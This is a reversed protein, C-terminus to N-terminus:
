ARPEAGLCAPLLLASGRQARHHATDRVLVSFNPDTSLKRNRAAGFGAQVRFPDEAPGRAPGPPQRPPLSSWGSTDEGPLLPMDWM